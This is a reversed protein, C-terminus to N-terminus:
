PKTPTMGRLVIYYHYNDPAYMKPLAFKQTKSDGGFKYGLLIIQGIPAHHKGKM